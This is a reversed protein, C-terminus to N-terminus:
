RNNSLLHELIQKNTEKVEEMNECMNDMKTELVKIATQTEAQSTLQIQRCMSKTVYESKNDVHIEKNTMHKIFFAFMAIITAISAISATFSTDFSM